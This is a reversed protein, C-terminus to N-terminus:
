KLKIKRGRIEVRVDKSAAELLALENKKFEVIEQKFRLSAQENDKFELKAAHVAIMTLRGIADNILPLISRKKEM